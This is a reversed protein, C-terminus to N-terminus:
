PFLCTVCFSLTIFVFGNFINPTVLPCWKGLALSLVRIGKISKKINVKEKVNCGERNLKYIEGVENGVNIGNEGNGWTRWTM